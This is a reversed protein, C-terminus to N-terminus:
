RASLFYMAARGAAWVAVIIAAMIGVGTWSISASNHALAGAVAWATAVIGVAALSCCAVYIVYGWVRGNGVPAAVDPTRSEPAAPADPAIEDQSGDSM